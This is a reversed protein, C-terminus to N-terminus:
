HLILSELNIKPYLLLHLNDRHVSITVDEVSRFTLFNESSHTFYYEHKPVEVTRSQTEYIRNNIVIPTHESHMPMICVFSDVPFNDDGLANLVIYDDSISVVYGAIYKVPSIWSYESFTKDDDRYYPFDSLSPKTLDKKTKFLQPINM